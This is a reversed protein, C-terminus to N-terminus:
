LEAWHEMWIKPPNKMGIIPKETFCIKLLDDEIAGYGALVRRIMPLITNGDVPNKWFTTQFESGSTQLMFTCGDSEHLVLGQTKSKKAEPIQSVLSWVPSISVISCKQSKAWSILMELFPASIAAALNKITPDLGCVFHDGKNGIQKNAAATAIANIEDTRKVGVPFTFNVATCLAGSLFFRLRTGKKIYKAIKELTNEVPMTSTRRFIHTEETGIKIMVLSQSLYIDATKFWALLV